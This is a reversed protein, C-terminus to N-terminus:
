RNYLGLIVFAKEAPKEGVLWSFDDRIFERDEAEFEGVLAVGPLFLLDL